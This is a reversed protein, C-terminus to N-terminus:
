TRTARAARRRAVLARLRNGKTKHHNEWGRHVDAVLAPGGSPSRAASGAHDLLECAVAAFGSRTAMKALWLASRVFGATIEERTGGADLVVAEDIHDVRDFPDPEGHARLRASVHAAVACLAQLQLQRMSAQSPHFRYHAVVDPLNALEVHEALRLWLDFDQALRFAPRYGGVLDFADKRLTVASHVFPTSRPMELRIERDQLPYTAAAVAQGQEDIFTVAGGLVAVRPNAELFQLQRDLRAPDARDDADILAILPARALAVGRNRARAVGENPQHRVSMREERSALEDLLAPTADTSGDDIVLLELDAFSQSLVSQVAEVVFREGDRVAMVVSVAPSPGRPATAASAGEAPMTGLM